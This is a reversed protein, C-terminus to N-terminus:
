HQYTQWPWYFTDPDEVTINVELMNGGDILHWRETVHLRDCFKPCKGSLREPLKKPL